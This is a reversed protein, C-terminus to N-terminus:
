PGLASKSFYYLGATGSEIFGPKVGACQAGHMSGDPEGPDAAFACKLLKHQL